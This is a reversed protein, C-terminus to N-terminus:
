QAAMTPCITKRPLVPGLARREVGGVPGEVAGRFVGARKGQARRGLRGGDDCGRVPARWQFPLLPVPRGNGAWACRISFEPEPGLLLNVAREPEALKAQCMALIPVDWGWTRNLNWSTLVKDLTARMVARNVGLGPLVGLIGTLAPHEFNWNTWMDKVGEHLVYLGAQEPIPALGKRVREWTAKPPLGLRARWKQAVELGYRWYGLEFAPNETTKADTNESVLVVPPGLGYRKTVPDLYAYSALFDATADLIPQWKLLTERTPHARYELEAFAMPHPQQWILLGHIEHPWERGGPGICKPWRAGLYGQEKARKKADPLLRAYIGASRELEDWRNWLAWHAAHWWYMEMHFRGFWGNNVLGSEQPPSSGAENVAMLYQSLVIRRELEKWRPDSSGSLDIAGGRNWFKPWAQRSAALTEAAAPVASTIPTPSFAVTFELTKASKLPHLTYRRHEAPPVYVVDGNEAVEQHLQKGRLAYTVRLTKVQGHIPDGGLANSAKLTWHGEKLSQRAVETVDVWEDRSGYEAKQVEVPPMGDTPPRLAAPSDWRLGVHYSDTGNRKIFDARGRGPSTRSNVFPYPNRPEAELRDSTNWDGVYNAFQLGDIGPCDLFAALRGLGILPSEVQVGIADVGPHCATRVVVEQGELSFRSVVVGSWFDLHQHIGSIDRETATTGDRKTLVLGVRGLNIRRPNAALWDSLEPQAPDPMWYRVPRGHKDWVQVRFDALNFKAPLPTNIWCWDSLTNFPVFTQLGTADIGFAFHGNGVQLPANKDLATLEVNHRSVLAHRDIPKTEATRATVLLLLSAAHILARM